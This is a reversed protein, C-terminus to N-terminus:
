EMGIWQPPYYDDHCMGQDIESGPRPFGKFYVVDGGALWAGWWGFTGSTIIMHDCVSLMAMDVMPDDFKSFVKDYNIKINEKCWSIDDSVIIFVISSYKERFYTM